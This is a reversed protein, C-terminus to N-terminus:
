AEHVPSVFFPGAEAAAEEARSRGRSRELGIVHAVQLVAVADGQWVRQPLIAHLEVPDVLRPALELLGDGVELQVDLLTGNQLPHVKREPHNEASEADLSVGDAKRALLSM